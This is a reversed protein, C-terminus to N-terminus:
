QKVRMCRFSMTNSKYTNSVSVYSEDKWNIVIFSSDSEENVMIKDDGHSFIDDIDEDYPAILESSIPLIPRSIAKLERARDFVYPSMLQAKLHLNCYDNAQIFSLGTMGVLNDGYGKYAKQTVVNTMVEYIVKSPSDNREVAVDIWSNEPENEMSSYFRQGRTRQFYLAATTEQSTQFSLRKKPKFVEPKASSDKKNGGCATLAFIIIFFFLNQLIKKVLNTDL